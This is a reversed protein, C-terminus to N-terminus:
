SAVGHTRVNTGSEHVPFTHVFATYFPIETEKGDSWLIRHVFADPIKDYRDIEDYLWIKTGSGFEKHRSGLQERVDACLVYFLDAVKDGSQLYLSASHFKKKLPFVRITSSSNTDFMLIEWDHFSTETLSVASQPLKKKIPILHREYDDIALEWAEDARDAEEDDDSGFNIFREPTFFRMFTESRKETPRKMSPTDPQRARGRSSTLSRKRDPVKRTHRM